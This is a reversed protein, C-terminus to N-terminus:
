LRLNDILRAQGLWAAALVYLPQDKIHGHPSLETLDEGSRISVYEPRLGLEALEAMAAQELAKGDGVGGGASQQRWRERVSALVQYLAGARRREDANLYSNRSSMALGDAERVTEVALIQVPIQLDSVLHRIVILQQLDKEGFLTIDPQVINFLKAVVTTVGTFHGPRCAGDLVESLGPVIVRVSSDMGFPYIQAADPLYVADCAAAQLQACDQARTVPYRELDAADNFQLPNVYISAVIRDAVERARRILAMHGAHLNGMTPILAIREGARRWASVQARLTEISEFSHM